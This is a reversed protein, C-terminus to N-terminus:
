FPEKIFDKEFSDLREGGGPTSFVLGNKEVRKLLSYEEFTYAKKYVVRVDPDYVHYAFKRGRLQFLEIIKNGEVGLPSSSTSDVNLLLTGTAMEYIQFGPSETYTVSSEVNMAGYQFALYKGDETVVPGSCGLHNDPLKFITEGKQNLVLATGRMALADGEEGYVNLQYAIAAYQKGEYTSMNSSASTFHIADKEGKSLKTHPIFEKILQDKNVRSLDYTTPNVERTKKLPFRLSQYPNNAKLDFTKIKKNTREDIFDIGKTTNNKADLSYNIKGNKQEPVAQGYLSTAFCIEIQIFLSILVLQRKRM